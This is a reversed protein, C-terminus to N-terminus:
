LQFSSHMDRVSGTRVPGPAPRVTVLLLPELVSSFSTALLCAAVPGDHLSVQTGAVLRRDVGVCAADRGRM